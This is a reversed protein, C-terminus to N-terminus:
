VQVVVSSRWAALTKCCQFNTTLLFLDHNESVAARTTCNNIQRMCVNELISEWITCSLETLAAHSLCWDLHPTIDFSRISSQITENEAGTIAASTWKYKPVHVIDDWGLWASRTM